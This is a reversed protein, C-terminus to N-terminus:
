KTEPQAFFVNAGGSVADDPKESVDARRVVIDSLGDANVDAVAWRAGEAIEVAGDPKPSFGQAGSLCIRVKGPADEIAVDKRRDGNFDGALSVLEGSLYRRFMLSWRIPAADLRITFPVRIDPERAFAPTDNQLHISVEHRIERGSLLWNVSERIGGGFMDTQGTVLDYDGDGDYDVFSSQMEFSRTRIALMSRGGDVSVYTTCIPVHLAPSEASDSDEGVYDTVDDGNLRCAHASSPMVGSEEVRTKAADIAFRNQPDLQYRVTRHRGSEGPGSEWAGVSVSTGDLWVWCASRRSMIGVRRETAPWLPRDYFKAESLPPFIELCCSEAYRGETKRFVHLGKHSAFVIEPVGDGDLDCVFRDGSFSQSTDPAGLVIREYADDEPGFPVALEQALEEIWQGGSWRFVSLGSVSVCYLGSGWVDFLVPGSTEPFAARASEPFVGGRQFYIGQPLVLDAAGDEDFDAQRFNGSAQGGVWDTKFVILGPLDQAQFAVGALVCLTTALLIM